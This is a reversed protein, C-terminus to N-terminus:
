QLEDFIEEMRTLNKKWGDIGKSYTSSFNGNKAADLVINFMEAGGYPAGPFYAGGSVVLRAIILEFPSVIRDHILDIMAKDDADETYKLKLTKEYYEKLVEVSTENALQMYATAASFRRVNNLICGIDAQDHVLTIYDEQKASDYLPVPLLGKQVESNRVQESEMEGMKSLTFLVNGELFLTTASLVDSGVDMIGKTNYLTTFDSIFEFMDSNNEIVYAKSNCPEGEWGLISLGTTWTFAREMHTSAIFGVDEGAKADYTGDGNVDRGAGEIFITFWEYDWVRDEVDVYLYDMDYNMIGLEDFMTRNVYIVYSWRIM